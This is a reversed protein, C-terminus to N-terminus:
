DFLSAQDYQWAGEIVLLRRKTETGGPASFGTMRGDAGVIRHCPVVIPYPNRGLSRGVAQAAGPEDLRRALEGYTITRGPPITRSIAYVRRDFDALDQEDLIADALDLPEGHLLRGIGDITRQVAPPPEAEIADPWTPGLQRRLGQESPEPLRVGSIGRANWAIACAGLPTPFLSFAPASM